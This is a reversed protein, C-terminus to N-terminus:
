RDWLLRHTSPSFFKTRTKRIMHMPVPAGLIAEMM